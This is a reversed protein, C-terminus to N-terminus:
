NIVRSERQFLNFVRGSHTGNTERESNINERKERIIWGLHNHNFQGTGYRGRRRIAGRGKAWGRAREKGGGSSVGWQDSVWHLKCRWGERKGGEKLCQELSLVTATIYQNAADMDGACPQVSSEVDMSRWEVKSVMTVAARNISEGEGVPRFPIPSIKRVKKPPFHIMNQSLAERCGPRVELLEVIWYLGICYHWSVRYADTELKNNAASKPHIETLSKKRGVGPVTVLTFNGNM